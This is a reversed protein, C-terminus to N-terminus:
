GWCRWRHGWFRVKVSQILPSEWGKTQRWTWDILIVQLLDFPLILPLDSYKNGQSLAALCYTPLIGGVSTVVEVASGEKCSCIERWTDTIAREAQGKLKCIHHSTIEVSPLYRVMRYQRGKAKGIGIWYNGKSPQGWNCWSKRNLGQSIWRLKFDRWTYGEFTIFLDVIVFPPTSIPSFIRLACNILNVNILLLSDQCQWPLEKWNHAETLVRKQNKPPNLFLLQNAWFASLWSAKWSALAEQEHAQPILLCLKHGIFGWVCSPCIILHFRNRILTITLNIVDLWLLRVLSFLLCTKM